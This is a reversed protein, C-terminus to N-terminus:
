TVCWMLDYSMVVGKKEHAIPYKHAIVVYSITVPAPHRVSIIHGQTGSDPKEFSCRHRRQDKPFRHRRPNIICQLPYGGLSRLRPMPRILRRGLGIMSSDKGLAIGGHPPAGCRLAHLLHNFSAKEYDDLQEHILTTLLM